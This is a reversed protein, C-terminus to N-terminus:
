NAHFTHIIDCIHSVDEKTMGTHLPLTLVREALLRSVPVQAHKGFSQRYCDYDSILPYFYKRAFIQRSALHDFLDNRSHRYASEEVLIPMYAYNSKLKEDGAEHLCVAIGPEYALRELYIETLLKRIAINEDVHRLNCIGMAASFENMKANGGVSVVEEPGMIGFNKQQYLKLGFDEDSYCVAGGEISNFVKTAHFSLVSADGYSALSQGEYEVGFAHAADYIVKLNYKDAIIQIHDVECPNGYVHVPLIASTRETILQEIKTSDLTGDSYQIDCFVPTLGSRVIAHTSSSFSFPTTIIEGVLEFARIAAELASHGNVLLSIRRVRLYEILRRELEQHKEGMNTLWHSNWLPSIEEIYEALPPLSPRTITITNTM